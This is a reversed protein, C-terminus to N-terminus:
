KKNRQYSKPAPKEEREQEAPEISPEDVPQPEDEEPQPQLQPQEGFGPTPHEEDVEREDSEFGDVTSGDLNRSPDLQWRGGEADQVVGEGGAMTASGNAATKPM